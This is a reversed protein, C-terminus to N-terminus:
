ISRPMRIPIILFFWELNILFCLELWQKHRRNCVTSSSQDKKSQFYFVSPLHPPIWQNNCNFRQSQKNKITPCIRHALWVTTEGACTLSPKHGSCIRSHSLAPQGRGVSSFCQHSNFILAPPPITPPWPELSAVSWVKLKTSSHPSVICVVHTTVVAVSSRFSLVPTCMERQHMQISLSTAELWGAM